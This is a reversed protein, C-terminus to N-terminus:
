GKDHGIRESTSLLACATAIFEDDDEDPYDDPLQAPNSMAPVWIQHTARGNRNFGAGTLLLLLM